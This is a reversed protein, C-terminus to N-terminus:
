QKTLAEKFVVNKMKNIQNNKSDMSFIKLDNMKRCRSLAVYLQGHTFVQQRLHIGVKNLTQGQSKNITMAYCLKLPFQHRHLIFQYDTDTSTIDMKPVFVVTGATPGTLIICQIVSPKTATVKLRTGNCLGLKINM